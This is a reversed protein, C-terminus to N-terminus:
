STLLFVPSSDKNKPFSSKPDFWCFQTQVDIRHTNSVLECNLLLCWINFPQCHTQQTWCSSLPKLSSHPAQKRTRLSSVLFFDSFLGDGIYRYPLVWFARLRNSPFGTGHHSRDVKWKLRQHTCNRCIATLMQSLRNVLHLSSNILCLGFKVRPYGLIIELSKLDM